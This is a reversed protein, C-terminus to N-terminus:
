KCKFSWLEGNSMGKIINAYALLCEPPLDIMYILDSMQPLLKRRLSQMNNMWNISLKRLRNLVILTDNIHSVRKNPKLMKGDDYDDPTFEKLLDIDLCQNGNDTENDEDNDINENNDKESNDHSESNNINDNVKINDNENIESDNYHEDHNLQEANRRVLSLNNTENQM